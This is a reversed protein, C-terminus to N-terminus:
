AQNNDNSKAIEAEIRAELKNVQRNIRVLYIGLGVFIVLLVALVAYIKESQLLLSANASEQLLIGM